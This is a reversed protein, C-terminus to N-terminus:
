KLTISLKRCKTITGKRIKTENSLTKQVVLGNTRWWHNKALGTSKQQLLDELGVSNKHKVCFFFLYYNLGAFSSPPGILGSRLQAQPGTVTWDKTYGRIAITYRYHLGDSPSFLRETFMSFKAPWYWFFQNASLCSFLLSWICKKGKKNAWRLRLRTPSSITYAPMQWGDKLMKLRRRRQLWSASGKWIECIADIPPPFQYNHKKNWDWLFEPEM